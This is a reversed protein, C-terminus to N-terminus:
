LHTHLGREKLRQVIDRVDQARDRHCVLIVDDTDVIVIDELGITVVMRDSVILTDHTDVQIHDQLTSRLANGNEDRSL